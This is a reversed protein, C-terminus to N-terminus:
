SQAEPLPTGRSRHAHWRMYVLSCGTIVAPVVLYLGTAALLGLSIVFGVLAAARAARQGPLLRIAAITGIAYVVLLCGNTALLLPQPGSGTLAVVLLVLLSLGTQLLLSRRPVEGAQSGRSLWGPMAGDRGLAAGLKASGACYPNMVGLTLIVAVVATLARASGGLGTALLQGLPAQSTGAARGLVLLTAGAIAVYSVGVIVLAIATARPLDRRPQRFEAALYTIAEWGAFSWVLLGAAQGVGLWGHPAFPHLNSLRMRPVSTLVAAALLVLLLGALLLEVRGSLRVGFWNAVAVILLAAAVCVLVTTRGGGLAVAVYGAGLMASGPGAITSSLYFCWGVVAAAGPGLARRAYTSVGGADPYRAGLTAFTAALPVSALVLVLWAILSAPGAVKAALAPLAIVGTGLVAGLYLATGQPLTVGRVLKGPQPQMSQVEDM